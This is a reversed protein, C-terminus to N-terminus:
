AGQPEDSLRWYLGGVHEFRPSEVLTAFIPGPPCRRILNLASYLTKAHIHGQPTLTTLERCVDQMLQELSTNGKTFRRWLVDVAEPDEVDVIMLDDYECGIPKQRNEFRLRGDEVFATLVWEKRPKRRAYDILVEEPHDAQQITLYGGVPIEHQGFWDALGCVYGDTRVVWAPMREDSEADVLTFRIRPAQYATPFMKRLQPSLPLTGAVHHAYTLTVTVSEPPPLRRRETPVESHEDGIELELERLEPTLRDDAYPVPTYALRPPPNLVEDPEMRVLYWLVRGAPGVEDFRDDELLAYNMSFEALRENVGELMGIQELIEPTTMPGGGAMDLVAEALNLHGVHVEVLLSRPFWRGALRVLDEHEALHEELADAVEGGYEIFIQEPSMLAEDVAVDEEEELSLLDEGALDCAFELTRKGGVEVEIVTFEGHDPNSGPRSSVVKGAVYGLAPFVIEDGIDYHDGPQYVNGPRAKRALAAEEEKARYRVLVLAMEDASLPTENELLVNYLHDIDAPEIRFDEVWYKETQTRRQLV